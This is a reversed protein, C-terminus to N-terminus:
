SRRDRACRAACDTLEAAAASVKVWSAEQPQAESLLDPAIDLRELIQHSWQRRQQLDFAMTRLVMTYDIVPAAGLKGLIFDAYTTIKGPRAIRKRVNEKLCLM